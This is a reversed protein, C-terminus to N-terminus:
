SCARPSGGPERPWWIAWFRGALAYTLAAPNEISRALEVAQRSLADSEARKQPSSRLACALRTLLRVRLADDTGGLHVLADQLLPVLRSERGPRSWPLRGGLGLASLALERPAGQAKALESAEILVGRAAPIEGGRNLADGLAM